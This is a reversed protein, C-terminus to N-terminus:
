IVGASKLEAMRAESLGLLAGYVDATDAGLPPGLHDIGGPTRTL